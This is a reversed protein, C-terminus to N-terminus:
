PPEMPGPSPKLDRGYKQRVTSLFRRLPHDAYDPYTWPLARFEGRQFVLTLDAYIGRGVHIRHAYNKGSALVFRELLLYGPDINVPRRGDVSRSHEIANTALKIEALREQAVLPKFAAMRRWLPAGMEREYYRTYEFPFWPSVLDLPGFAAELDAALGPFLVRDKLLVGIVLKASRPPQPLSM